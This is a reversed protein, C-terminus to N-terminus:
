HADLQAQMAAVVLAHDDAQALGSVTVTGVMGVGRVLLPFAGGHAAYELTDLYAVDEFVKGKSKYTIGMAYSSRAFRQVTNNKRRIWDAQDQTAGSMAYHFMVQGNRTINVTVAKGQKRVEGVIWLGVALATDNDFREFQLTEEQQALTLLLDDYQEM